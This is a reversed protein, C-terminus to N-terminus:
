YAKTKDARSYPIKVANVGGASGFRVTVSDVSQSNRARRCQITRYFKQAATFTGSAFFFIICSYVKKRFEM